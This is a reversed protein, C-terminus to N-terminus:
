YYQGRVLTHTPPSPYTTCWGVSALVKEPQTCSLEATRIYCNKVWSLSQSLLQGIAQMSNNLM